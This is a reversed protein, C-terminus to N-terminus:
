EESYYEYVALALGAKGSDYVNGKFAEICLAAKLRAQEKDKFPKTIIAYFYSLVSRRITEPPYELDKLISLANDISGRKFLEQNFSKIDEKNEADSVSYNSIFELSEDYSLPSISEVISLIERPTGFSAEFIKDYLKEDIEINEKKQVDKIFELFDKKKLPYFTYRTCRSLVAKIIKEPETTCIIFFTNKPPHEFLDLIADQFNKTAEHFENLIYVTSNFFSGKSCEDIIDRANDVGTKDSINIEVVSEFPSKYKKCIKKAMLRSFTTKGLGRQGSLLYTAGDVSKIHSIFSKKNTECGFVESFSKPRLRTM